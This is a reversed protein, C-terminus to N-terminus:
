DEWLFECLDCGDPNTELCWRATAASAEDGEAELREILELRFDPTHRPAPTPPVWSCVSCELGRCPAGPWCMSCHTHPCRPEPQRVSACSHWSQGKRLEVAQERIGQWAQPRLYPLRGPRRPDSLFNGESEYDYQFELPFVLRQSPSRCIGQIRQRGSHNSSKSFIEGSLVTYKVGVSLKRVVM